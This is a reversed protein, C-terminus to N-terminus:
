PVINGNRGIEGGVHFRHRVMSQALLFFLVSLGVILLFQGISVRPSNGEEPDETEETENSNTTM